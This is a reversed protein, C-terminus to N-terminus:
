PDRQPLIARIGREVYRSQRGHEALEWVAQFESRDAQIFLVTQKSINSINYQTSMQLEIRRDSPKAM